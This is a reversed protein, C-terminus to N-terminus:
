LINVIINIGQSLLKLTILTTTVGMMEWTIPTKSESLNISENLMDHDVISVVYRQFEGINHDVLIWRSYGSNKIKEYIPNTYLIM